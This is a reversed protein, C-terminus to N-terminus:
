ALSAIATHSGGRAVLPSAAGEAPGLHKWIAAVPEYVNSAAGPRVRWLHNLSEQWDTLISAARESGTAQQHYAILAAVAEEEARDDIRELAVLELNATRPLRNEPDYVYATGGSMGAAFNRGAPGLVVVVGGTMYECGHDGVGEVVAVAGSNRVAFREGARGRALLLGGTAGYLVTNGAIVQEAADFRARPPMIVIEGGTMGKGVYDNAEGVLILRLGPMCFAGFSQGASGAYHCIISGAPLGTDGWREAIAGALRAGITRDRNSISQHLLVAGGRQLLPEADSLLAHDSHTGTVASHSRAAAGAKRPTTDDGSALLPELHAFTLGSATTNALREEDVALLDARGIVEDLTRAGLQALIDRVEEAIALLFHAVHEPQGTFRRRLDERQTAIGTPCTDLHCQRAMDCGLAVLAATGFGFEDAGLLAAIVVDRGTKLGGDVRLRVRERLGNLRLVQQAETLGLEWSIGAHKISSLPSAGTGGDHGSILVYDAHAKAVGAAVTGVGRSAVLKVGVAARPNVQKLDYILQALDEISYIDHHPPPSILQIGPATHRMHAILDTVKRAPLQGGEGPKSGQAMKIELEDAHVLYGATVGFRGSAVQKIRSNMPIGDRTGNRWDPDEGGEGTNSRAGVSNAGLTLTLHAEPSLSGLSMATTIFRAVIAVAPEVEERAIAAGLRFTLLDRIATAPRGHVLAAYTAYDAPEGGQAVRQLAKVTQPNAAHYEGDKRFRVLGRDALRPRMAVPAPTEREPQPAVARAFQRADEAQQRMQLDLDALTRAGLLGPTLSFYRTVLDADLGVCEFQQGGIYSEMVSLGMRALVKCLGKELAHLYNEQAAQPTVTEAGRTGALAAATRLALYPCVANAGYGLLLAVSHVDWAAGTEVIVGARLRLGACQLAGHVAAIALPQPLPAADGAVNRDSLVIVGAGAQVSAVAAAELADLAERLAQGPPTGSPSDDPLYASSLRAIPIAHRDALALVSRLGPENLLPTELEILTSEPKHDNLVSGRAGLFTALSMVLRERLSDIPPNTVQAFRQRFYAALPRRHSALVALPTDDGMSWVAEAGESLMPRLVLEVDEHGYGFLTQRALLSAASGAVGPQGLAGEDDRTQSDALVFHRQLWRAYPHRSALASKLEADRWLTGTQTDVVLMQGPGLRGKEVIDTTPLDVVGAESAVVLLGNETLLYRLPRLGNRDLMAGAYRGDSFALAAPGDWPGMLPARVHFFDRVADPLGEYGEWAEPILLTLADAVDRGSSVLLELANDLSTSDSGGPEIVPRLFTADDGWVSELAAERAQLWHRNAQVTNIEGNHALLRMPQALPWSPFTNTSYRQHFLALASEYDDSRLDPYFVPLNAATVLGKYVLTRTSFSAVYMGHIGRQALHHEAERRALYLTRDPAADREGRPCRVLVQEIRPCSRRASAGLAAHSLPVVRWGLVGVGRKELAAELAQRCQGAEEVDQPLFIMGVGLEEPPPVDKGHERLWLALLRYPVQTLVGAGDSTEADADMAGRHALNALAELAHEVVAHSGRGAIDVVVGTGCSDHEFQPDYLPYNAPRQDHDPSHIPTGSIGDAAEPDFTRDHQLPNRTVPQDM